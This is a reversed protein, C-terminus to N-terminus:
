AVALQDLRKLNFLRGGGEEEEEEGKAKCNLVVVSIVPEYPLRRQLVTATHNLVQHLTGVVYWYSSLTPTKSEQVYKDLVWINLM